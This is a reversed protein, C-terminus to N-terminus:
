LQLYEYEMLISNNVPVLFNKPGSRVFLEVHPVSDNGSSGPLARCLVAAGLLLERLRGAMSAAVREAAGLRVQAAQPGLKRACKRCLVGVRGPLGPLRVCRPFVSSSLM